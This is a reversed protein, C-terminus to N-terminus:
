MLYIYIYFTSWIKATRWLFWTIIAVFLSVGLSCYKTMYCCRARMWAMFRIWINYDTVSVRFIYLKENHVYNNDMWGDLLDMLWHPTMLELILWSFGVVSIQSCNAYLLRTWVIIVDALKLDVTLHIGALMNLAESSGLGKAFGSICPQIWWNWDVLNCFHTYKHCWVKFFIWLVEYNGLVLKILMFAYESPNESNLIGIMNSYKMCKEHKRWLQQDLKTGTKCCGM